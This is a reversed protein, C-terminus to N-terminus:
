QGFNLNLTCCTAGRCAVSTSCSARQHNIQQHNISAGPAPDLSLDAQTAPGTVLTVLVTSMSRFSPESGYCLTVLTVPLTNFTLIGKTVVTPGPAYAITKPATRNPLLGPILATAALYMAAVLLVPKTHTGSEGRGSLGHCSLGPNVMFTLISPVTIGEGGVPTSYRNPVTNLM